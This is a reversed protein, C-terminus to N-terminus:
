RFAVLVVLLAIWTAELAIAAALFGPRRRPPEVSRAVPSDAAADSEKAPVVDGRRKGGSRLGPANKKRRKDRM